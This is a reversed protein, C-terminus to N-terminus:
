ATCNCVLHCHVACKVSSICPSLRGSTIDTVVPSTIDTSLQSTAELVFCSM